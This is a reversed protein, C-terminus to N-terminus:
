AANQLNSALCKLLIFTSHTELTQAIKEAKMMLDNRLSSSLRSVTESISSANETNICSTTWSSKITRQTYDRIKHSSHSRLVETNRAM